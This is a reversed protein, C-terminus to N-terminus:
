RSKLKNYIKRATKNKSLRKRIKLFRPSKLWNDRRSSLNSIRKLMSANFSNRQLKRVKAHKKQFAKYLETSTSKLYDDFSKARVSGREKDPDMTVSLEYHSKLLHNVLMNKMYERQGNSMISRQNEYYKVMRRIVRDHHDYRMVFVDSNISQDANGVNYRYIYEPTHAITKVYPLPALTYEVDVYFTHEQLKFNAQRLISTKIMTSHITFYEMSFDTTAFDYAQYNDRDSVKIWPVMTGDTCYVQHYNNSILDADLGTELIGELLTDLNQSDVWDDGDVVRFYKGTAIELASNITSGHGGNQKSILKVISPYHEQYAKAIEETADSSGDNVVIVELLNVHIGSVLSILCRDLFAEVNYSPICVTLLKEKTNDLLHTPQQAPWFVREFVRPQKPQLRQELQDDFEAAVCSADYKSRYRHNIDIKLREQAIQTLTKALGVVDSQDVSVGGAEEIITDAPSGKGTLALIPKSTGMYDSLKAAFYVSGGTSDMHNFHADVHILWDSEQMISLSELYGVAPEIQIIDYLYYNFIMARLQEVTNGIIRFRLNKLITSNTDKLLRIAEVLPSLTRLHDSHGLFSLTIPSSGREISESSLNSRPIRSSQESHYATSASAFLESDFTHPVILTNPRRRSGLVYSCLTDNPFILINAKNIAIDEIEKLQVMTRINKNPHNAWGKCGYVLAKKFQDKEYDSLETIGESAENKHEDSSELWTYIDYPSKAIPDALSAIWPIDPYANKIREAFVISEPPMSRSMIADFPQSAHLEEFLHFGQEIWDEFSDAKISHVTINNTNLDFHQKYSWRTSDSSCVVYKHQSNRLLKYAVNGESSTSPPFFWSAVFIRM